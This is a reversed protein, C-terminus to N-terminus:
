PDTRTGRTADIVAPADRVRRVRPSAALAVAGYTALVLAGALAATRAPSRPWHEDFLVPALAVPLVTDVLVIVPVVATVDASVLASTETLFGIVGFVITAVLGGALVVARHSEIGRAVVESSMGTLAFAFGVSAALWLPGLVRKTARLVLPGVAVAALVVATLVWARAGATTKQPAPAFRSLLAVGAALAAGSVVDRPRPPTGMVLWAFGLLLFVGTGLVPQVFTLSAVTLAWVQFGWGAVNLLTGTVWSRMRVLRVFLSPKLIRDDGSGYAASSQLVVGANYCVAAGLCIALAVLVTDTNRVTLGTTAAAAAAYAACAAGTRANVGKPRRSKPGTTRNGAPILRIAM